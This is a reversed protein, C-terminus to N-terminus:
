FITRIIKWTHDALLEVEGIFEYRSIDAGWEEPSVLSLFQHNSNREYLYYHGGIVPDFKLEAEYIQQSIKIRDQIRKAQTALLRMQELIMDLQMQTQGKLAEIAKGKIVGQETPVVSFGGRSHAYEILSPLDTTQKKMHELDIEQIQIAHPKSM